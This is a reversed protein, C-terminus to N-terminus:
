SFVVNGMSQKKENFHELKGETGEEKVSNEECAHRVEDLHRNSMM